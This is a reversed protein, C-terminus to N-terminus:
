KMRGRQGLYASLIQSPSQDTTCVVRDIRLRSCGMGLQTQFEEFKTLYSNRIRSGDLLRMRSPEELSRFQTRNRFPFDIEDQDLVHFLVVENHNHRFIALTRLLDPVDVFCDSILILLGRRELKPRLEALVSGVATEGTPRSQMLCSLLTHLHNPKSHAPIFRRLSKDFTALGVADQQDILMTALCAALRIGFEHKTVGGSRSGSYAMSRSQDVMLLCRLSTEEEYQRIYLRDTKGYLKWDMARVEDGPVYPRHEKFEVSFGKHPSLHMGVTLGDVVERALLQLRVLREKDRSDLLRSLFPM